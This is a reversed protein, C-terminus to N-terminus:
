EVILREREIKLYRAYDKEIQAQDGSLVALGPLTGTDVTKKVIMGEKVWPDYLQFTPLEKLDDETIMRKLVGDAPSRLFILRTPTHKMPALAQDPGANMLELFRRMQNTGVAYNEAESFPWGAPRPNIEILAFRGEGERADDRIMFETHSCGNLLGVGTHLRNALTFLQQSLAGNPDIIDAYHYVRDEKYYVFVSSAEHRGKWSVTNVAVEQGSAFEVAVLGDMVHGHKDAQGLHKRSVAVAEETSRWDSVRDTGSSIPPKTIGHPRGKAILREAFAITDAESRVLAYELLYLDPIGLTAAAELMASKDTRFRTTNPDNGPLNFRHNLADALPVGGDTGAFVYALPRNQAARLIRTATEDLGHSGDIVDQYGGSYAAVKEQPFVKSTVMVPKMKGDRAALERPLIQAGSWPDVAVLVSEECNEAEAHALCM